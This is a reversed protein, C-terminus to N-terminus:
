DDALSCPPMVWVFTTHSKMSLFDWIEDFFDWHVLKIVSYNLVFESSNYYHLHKQQWLLLLCWSIKNLGVWASKKFCM